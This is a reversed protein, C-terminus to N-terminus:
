GYMPLSEIIDYFIKGKLEEQDLFEIENFLDETLYSRFRIYGEKGTEYDRVKLWSKQDTEIFLLVRGKEAKFLLDKSKTDKYINIPLNVVGIIRGDYDVVKKIGEELVIKGNELKYINERYYPFDLAREIGEINLTKTKENYSPAIKTTFGYLVYGIYKLENGNYHFVIGEGNTEDSYSNIKFILEKYKDDPDMDIIEMDGLPIGWLYNEDSVVGAMKVLDETTYVNEDIKINGTYVTKVEKFYDDPNDSIFHIKEDKNDGNLDVEESIEVKSEESVFNEEDDEKETWFKITYVAKLAENTDQNLLYVRDDGWMRIENKEDKSFYFDVPKNYNKVVLGEGKKMSFPFLNEEKVRSRKIEASPIDQNAIILIYNSFVGLDEQTKEQPDLIKFEKWQEESLFDKDKFYIGIVVDEPECFDLNKKVFSSTEIETNQVNKESEQKENKCSILLASFMLLIFIMIKKM